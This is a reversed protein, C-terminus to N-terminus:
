QERVIRSEAYQHTKNVDKRPVRRVHSLEERIRTKIHAHRVSEDCNQRVRDVNNRVNDRLREDDLLRDFTEVVCHRCKDEM